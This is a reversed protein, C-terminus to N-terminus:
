HIHRLDQRRHRRHSGRNATATPWGPCISLLTRTARYTQPHEANRELKLQFSKKEILVENRTEAKEASLRPIQADARQTTWQMTVGTSSETDETNACKIGPSSFVCRESATPTAASPAIAKTLPNRVCPRRRI